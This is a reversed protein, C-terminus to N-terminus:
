PPAERPPTLDSRRGRTSRLRGVREQRTLRVLAAGIEHLPLVLATPVAAIAARPMTASEATAPDQVIAQGGRHVIARLGVAGDANAGTLVVGITGRDYAHAASEFTVDISPRSYRHPAETSLAFFEGEILLHYDAPAVFVHGPVVPAKDDVECVPVAAADQLIEALVDTSDRSRHQVLVVPLPFDVPLARIVVSVAQLGGASAGVVVM